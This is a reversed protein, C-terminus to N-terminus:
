AASSAKRRLKALLADIQVPKVFHADFGANRGRERDSPQGYGTLAILYIGAGKPLARIRTALEFGDMGPLGLDIIMVDPDHADLLALAAASSEVAHCRLGSLTLLECLVERSDANDEVIVVTSGVPVDFDGEDSEGEVRPEVEPILTERRVLPLTVVFTSGKGEGDSSATVNGGHMAVLSRVLSLGVGLGGASRDLTRPSQVFLEFVSELLDLPIGAGDDIVKISVVDGERTTVVRVHGGAPTYKAANALLNVVVQQLRAPDGHVPLAEQALERSVELDRAEFQSRVAELAERVVVNVDLAQKRLEIKNETVRSAELLEDLLRAMQQTQRDLVEICRPGTGASDAKLLGTASVIASLPNRLEHSLMALFQDRRRVAERIKEEARAQEAKLGSVDIVTLVVGDNTGNARYPLV